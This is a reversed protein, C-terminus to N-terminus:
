IGNCMIRELQSITEEISFRKATNFAQLQMANRLESNQVTYIAKELKSELSDVNKGSCLYGNLGDSIIEPIGGVDSGICICKFAMAEVISIGFIESHSPYAFIDAGKLFPTVDIQFGCFEIDKQMGNKKTSDILEQTESGEGVYYLRVDFEKRIRTFAELLEFVGKPEVIRGIYVIKITRNSVVSKNSKKAEELMESDIGNYVIYSKKEDIVFYDLYSLKGVNSVFVIADSESFMRKMIYIKLANKILGYYARDRKADYCHHVMTIYKKNRFKSKLLLYYLELYPDDHHVIVVDADKAVRYLEKAKSLRRTKVLSVTKLGLENMSDYICGEKFMFCFINDYRSYKGISRCLVEIGGVDGSTLLHLVRM